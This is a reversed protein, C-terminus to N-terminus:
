ACVVDVCDHATIANEYATSGWLDLLYVYTAHGWDCMRDHIVKMWLSRLGGNSPADCKGVAHFVCDYFRRDAAVQGVQCCYDLDHRFCCQNVEHLTDPPFFFSSYMGITQMQLYTSGCGWDAVERYGMLSNYSLRNGESSVLNIGFKICDIIYSITSFVVYIIDLDYVSVIPLHYIEIVWVASLVVLLSLGLIGVINGEKTQGNLFSHCYYLLTGYFIVLVPIDERLQRNVGNLGFADM